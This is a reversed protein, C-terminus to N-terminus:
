DLRVMIEEGRGHIEELNKYGCLGLTIEFEALISKVVNEVGAQGAIALGYIFPRGLLVGQAGLVIAKFMDSGTRVGSDVLVTFKGSAQAQKVKASQCIKQLAYLSPVAGDVQRGGHNSVVIGDVGADIALEADEVSLIGKLILPGEWQERLFKLDEWSRFQGANTQAIWDAGLRVLQMTKEDGQQLLADLHAPDYPFAPVEEPSIPELRHRAMFVPDTLGIQAGVSHFFPLYAADIDRPRWGLMMCDLTVVLASFGSAKIRSLISRTIDDNSPWYLQYWRPGTGNAKAVAEISRTAASSMIFPLGLKGVAAASALEAEAHVIGQVGIPALMLPAPYKVGFLSTEISRVTTDRLMRPVIKWKDFEKRNNHYTASTGANCFVYSFADERGKLKERASQELREVDVTGSVPPKRSAYSERMFSSWDRSTTEAANSPKSM